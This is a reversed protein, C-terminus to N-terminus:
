PRDALAALVRIDGCELERLLTWLTQPLRQLLLYQFVPQVEMASPCVSLMSALLQSPKRDGLPGLQYLADMKEHDSLVHAEL